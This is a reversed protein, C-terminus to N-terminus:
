GSEPLSWKRAYITRLPSCHDGKPFFKEFGDHQAPRGTWAPMIASMYKRCHVSVNKSCAHERYILKLM